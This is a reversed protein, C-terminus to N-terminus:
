RKGKRSKATTLHWKGCLNCEYPRLKRGSKPSGSRHNFRRKQVRIYAADKVAEEKSPYDIKQCM